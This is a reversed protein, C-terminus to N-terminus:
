EKGKLKRIAHNRQRQQDRRDKLSEVKTQKGRIKSIKKLVKKVTPKIVKLLVDAFPKALLASTTAVIAISATTVVVGTPPIANVAQEVIPVEEVIRKCEKGELKYGVIIKRGSDFIFGVPENSLQEATPCDIIATSPSTAPPKIPTPEPPKPESKQDQQRTDVGAPYTPVIQEPEFNIPDYSPAGADCYTQLGNKDDSALNNNKPNNSEHAEVCGPMDIIPIGITQTVPVTPPIAQPPDMLWEPVDPIDLRRINIEKIKIDM